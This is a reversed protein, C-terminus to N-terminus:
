SQSTREILAPGKVRFRYTKGKRRILVTKGHNTPDLALVHDMHQCWLSDEAQRSLPASGNLPTKAKAPSSPTSM